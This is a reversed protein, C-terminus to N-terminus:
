YHLSKNSSLDFATRSGTVINSTGEKIMPSCRAVIKLFEQGSLYLTFGIISQVPFPTRTDHEISFGGRRGLSDRHLRNSFAPRTMTLPLFGVHITSLSTGEGRVDWLLLVRSNLRWTFTVRESDTIEVKVTFPMDRFLWKGAGQAMASFSFHPPQNCTPKYPLMLSHHRLGRFSGPSFACM